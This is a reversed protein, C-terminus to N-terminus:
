LGRRTEGEADDERLGEFNIMDGFKEMFGEHALKEDNKLDFSFV